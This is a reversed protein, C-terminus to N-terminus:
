QTAEPKVAKPGKAPQQAAAMEMEKAQQEEAEAKVREAATDWEGDRPLDVGDLIKDMDIVDCLTKRIVPDAALTTLTEKFTSLRTDILPSQKVRITGPKMGYNVAQRMDALSQIGAAIDNGVLQSDMVGTETHQESDARSGNQSEAGTRSSRLYGQFILEENHRMRDLFGGIATAIEGFDIVDFTVLATAALKAMLDPDDASLALNPLIVVQGNKFAEAAIIADDRFQRQGTTSSPDAYSGAPCKIVASRGSLKGGVAQLQQAADLWDKWATDRFNELRSRGYLNGAEGDHTLLLAKGRDKWLDSAKLDTSATGMYGALGAISGPRLAIFNGNKDAVIETTDVLLPKLRKIRWINDVEWIPEFGAWGYDLMRLADTVFQPRLADLERGLEKVIEPDVGEDAEYFWSSAILGSQVISRVLRVTPNNLILRYSAYTGYYPTGYGPFNLPNALTGGGFLLPTSIGLPMSGLLGLGGAIQGIRGAVQAGSVEGEKLKPLEDPM